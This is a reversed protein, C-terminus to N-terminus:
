PKQYLIVTIVTIQDHVYGQYGALWYLKGKRAKKQLKM